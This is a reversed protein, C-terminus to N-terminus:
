SYELGTQQLGVLGVNAQNIQHEAVYTLFDTKSYAGQDILSALDATIEATATQGTAAHYVLRVFKDSGAGGALSDIVGSKVLLDAADHLSIGTDFFKLLNGVMAKDTMSSKGLVAGLLLASKGASQTTGLDIAVSRDSFQLREINTLQDTLALGKVTISGDANHTLKYDSAKGSYISTDIGLGGNISASTNANIDKFLDNGAWTRMIKSQNRDSVTVSETYDLSPDLRVPVNVFEQQHVNTGNINRSIGFEAVLNIKNDSTLYEIFRPQGANKLGAYANVQEGLAQFQSHMYIHLKGTGDNLMIYNNQMSSQPTGDQNFPSTSGAQFYTAIGSHDIDVIQMAKDVEDTKLDYSGNLAATKDTFSVAGVSSANQFMQLEAFEMGIDQTWMLASVLLDPKGDHNFDDVWVRPAHTTGNGFLNPVNAYQPNATFYPTLRVAPYGTGAVVDSMKYIDLLPAKTSDYRINPGFNSDTIVLDMEGNGDFDAINVSSGGITAYGSANRFQTEAFKGNVYQYYPDGEGGYSATFVTPLGLYNAVVGGHGQISDNLTIKAFTGATNSLYATSPVSVSPSENHAPLFIDQKGDGNFDAVLASGSGNTVPDSLYKSTAVSLTGDASQELIAANVKYLTKNDWGDYAWGDLVLGNRGNDLRIQSYFANAIPIGGQSHSSSAEVPTWSGAITVPIKRGEFTVSYSPLLANLLVSENGTPGGSFELLQINKLTKTGPNRTDAATSSVTFTDDSANYTIKFNAAREFFFAVTNVGGRGDFYDNGSGGYFSDDGSGGLLTDAYSSGHINHVNVLTDTTGFGDQAMGTQLDVKVASPSDWYVAATNSKVGTITDNGPGGDVNAFGASIVDDGGEGYIASNEPIGLKTQDITDNLSTGHYDM